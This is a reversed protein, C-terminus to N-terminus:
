LNAPQENGQYYKHLFPIIQMYIPISVFLMFVTYGLVTTAQVKAGWMWEAAFLDCEPAAIGAGEWLRINGPTCVGACPFRQELAQLYQFQRAWTDKVDNYQMCEEISVVGIKTYLGCNNYVALADQYALNLQRKEEFSNCDTSRLADVVNSIDARQMGGIFAFFVFPVWLSAMFFWNHWRICHHSFHMIPLWALVFFGSLAAQGVFYKVDSNFGIYICLMFPPMLVILMGFSHAWAVFRKFQSNAGASAAASKMANYVGEGQPDGARSFASQLPQKM